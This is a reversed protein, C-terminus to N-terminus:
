YCCYLEFYNKILINFSSVESVLPLKSVVELVYWVRKRFTKEDCKWLMANSHETWYNKVFFLAWLMHLPRTSQNVRNKVRIWLLVTVYPSIGFYSRYKRMMTQDSYHVLNLYIDALRMFADADM